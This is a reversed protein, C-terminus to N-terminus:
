KKRGKQWAKFADVADEVIINARAHALSRLVEEPIHLLRESHYDADRQCAALYQADLPADLSILNGACLVMLTIGCEIESFIQTPTDADVAQKILRATANHNRSDKPGKFIFTAREADQRLRTNFSLQFAKRERAPQPPLTTPDPKNRM